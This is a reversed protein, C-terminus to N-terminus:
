LFIAIGGRIVAEEGLGSMEIRPLENFSMEKVKERIPDIVLSENNLAVGGGVRIVSPAYSQILNTVGIANWDAIKEVVYNAFEDEPAHRFVDSAELGEELSLETDEFNSGEFLFRAYGPINEGSSYAEWHGERGCGCVRRGAPDVVTHGAEGAGNKRGKLANGDVIVGAGIGSSISLYVINEPKSDSYFREGIVALTTDNYLRVDSDVLERIPGRLSIREVGQPLNAPRQIEGKEEDITGISGIGVGEVDEIKISGRECAKEIAELVANTVDEGR